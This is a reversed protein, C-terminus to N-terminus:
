VVFVDLSPVPGKGTYQAGSQIYRHHEGPVEHSCVDVQSTAPKEQQMRRTQADQPVFEALACGGVRLPPEHSIDSSIMGKGDDSYAHHGGLPQLRPLPPLIPPLHRALHLVERAMEQPLVGPALRVERQYVNEVGQRGSEEAAEWEGPGHSSGARM